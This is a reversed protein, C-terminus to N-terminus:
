YMAFERAKDRSSAERVPTTPAAMAPFRGPRPSAQPALRDHRFWQELPQFVTLRVGPWLVAATIGTTSRDGGPRLLTADRGVTLGGGVAGDLVLISAGIMGPRGVHGGASVGRVLTATGFLASGPLIGTAPEMFSWMM